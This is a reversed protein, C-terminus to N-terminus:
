QGRRVIGWTLGDASLVFNWDTDRFQRMVMETGPLIQGGELRLPVTGTYVAREWGPHIPFRHPPTPFSGFCGYGWANGDAAVLMHWCQGTGATQFYVSTSALLTISKSRPDPHEWVPMDARLFGQEWGEPMFGTPPLPTLPPPEFGDLRASGNSAAPAAMRAQANPRTTTSTTAPGRATEAARQSQEADRGGQPSGQNVAQGIGVILAIVLAATFLGLATGHDQRAQRPAPWAIENDTFRLNEDGRVM